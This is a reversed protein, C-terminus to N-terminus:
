KLNIIGGRLKKCTHSSNDLNLNKSGFKSPSIKKLFIKTQQHLKKNGEDWQTM